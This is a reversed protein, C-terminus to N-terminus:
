RLPEKIAEMLVIRTIDERLGNYMITFFVTIIKLDKEIKVTFDLAKEFTELRGETNGPLSLNIKQGIEFPTIKNILLVKASDPTTKLQSPRTLSNLKYSSLKGNEKLATAQIFNHINSTKADDLFALALITTAFRAHTTRMIRERWM